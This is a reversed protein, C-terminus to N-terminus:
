SSLADGESPSPWVNSDHRTCWQRDFTRVEGKASKQHAIVAQELTKSNGKITIAEDGVEIRDILLHAYGRRFAPDGNRLQDALLLGFKEVVDPTVLVKEDNVRKTLTEIDHELSSQRLRLTRLRDAFDADDPSAIGKEILMYLRQIGATAETRTTKLSALETKRKERAGASHDLFEALLSRLRNPQLIRGAIQNLVIDDLKGMPIAKGPCASAGCRNRLSCSYYKYAGSKGTRTTM